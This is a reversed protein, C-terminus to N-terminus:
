FLLGMFDLVFIWLFLTVVSLATSMVVFHGALEGDGGMSQAMPFSAVAIPTGYMALVLFLELTRLGLAYGIVMMVLPIGILKLALSPVLYKLNHRLSTFNLTGGLVFLAMPSTLDSFTEVATEIGTPLKIELVLFIIGLFAGQLLPNKVLKIGIDKALQGKGGAAASDEASRFMELVMVSTVNYMSVIITVILATTSGAEEGYVSYVLPLAFLVFNSRFIAQIIVGRRPNEKVIRPVILILLLQLVLLSVVSFAILTVSPWSQIDSNYLNYFTVFPYMLAFLMRNLEQLFDEKVVGFAKAAYGFALYILFPIVANVAVTFSALM